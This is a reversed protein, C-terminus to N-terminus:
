IQEKIITVKETKWIVKGECRIGGGRHIKGTVEKSSINKKCKICYWNLQITM